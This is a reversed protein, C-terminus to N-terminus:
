SQQLTSNLAKNKKQNISNKTALYIASRARGLLIIKKDDVETLKLIEQKLKEHINNDNDILLDKLIKTYNIKSIVINPIAM